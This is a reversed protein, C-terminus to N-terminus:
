FRDPEIHRSASKCIRNVDFAELYEARLLAEEWREMLLETTMVTRCSCEKVFVSLIEKQTEIVAPVKRIAGLALIGVQPQNIITNFFVEL